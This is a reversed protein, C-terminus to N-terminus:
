IELFYLFEKGELQHDKVFSPVNFELYDLEENPDIGVPKQHKYLLYVFGNHERRFFFPSVYEM